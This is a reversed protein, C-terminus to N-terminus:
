ARTSDRNASRQSLNIITKVGAEKGAQAFNVTAHIVGPQVPWVFYASNIGEMAARVTNIELHDGLVIEAGSKNLADSRADESHVM